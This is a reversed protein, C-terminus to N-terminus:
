LRNRRATFTFVWSKVFEGGCPTVIHGTVASIFPYRVRPLGARLRRCRPTSWHVPRRTTYFICSHDGSSNEYKRGSDPLYRRSVFRVPLGPSIPPERCPPRRRATARRPAIRHHTLSKKSM